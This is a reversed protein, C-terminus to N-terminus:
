ELMKTRTTLALTPRRRLAWTQGIGSPFLRNSIAARRCRAGNGEVTVEICDAKVYQPGGVLKVGTWVPPINPDQLWVRFKTTLMKDNALPATSKAV